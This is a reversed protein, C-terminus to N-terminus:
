REATGASKASDRRVRTAAVASPDVSSRRRPELSSSRVRAEDLSPEQSERRGRQPGHLPLSTAAEQPQVPAAATEGSRTQDPEATESAGQLPQSRPAPRAVGWRESFIPQFEMGDHTRYQWSSVAPHGLRKTPGENEALKVAGLAHPRPTQRGRSSLPRSSLTRGATGPRTPCRMWLATRTLQRPTSLNPETPQLWPKCEVSPLRSSYISMTPTATRPRERAFASQPRSSVSGAEAGAVAFRAAPNQPGMQTHSVVARETALRTAQEALEDHRTNAQLRRLSDAIMKQHKHDVVGARHLGKMLTGRAHLTAVVPGTINKRLCAEYEHLGCAESVFM